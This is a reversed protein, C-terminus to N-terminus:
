IGSFAQGGDGGFPDGARLGEAGPGAVTAKNTGTAPLWEPEADALGATGVESVALGGGTGEGVIGVFHALGLGIEVLPEFGLEGAHDFEIEIEADFFVSVGAVEEDSDIIMMAEGVPDEVAGLSEAVAVALSPLERTDVMVDEVGLGGKGEVIVIADLEGGRVAVEGGLGAVVGIIVRADAVQV